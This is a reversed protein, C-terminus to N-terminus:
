INELEALLAEEAEQEKAENMNESEKLIRKKEKYKVEDFDLQFHKIDEKVGQKYEKEAEEIQKKENELISRLNAIQEETMIPLVDVWYQREEANMSESKKIMALLDPFKKSVEEPVILQTNDKATTSQNDDPM